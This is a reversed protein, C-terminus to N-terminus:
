TPESREIQESTEKKSPEGEFIQIQEGGMLLHPKLKVVRIIVSKFDQVDYDWVQLNEDSIELSKNADIKRNLDQAVKVLDRLFWKKGQEFFQKDEENKLVFVKFEPNEAQETEWSHSELLHRLHDRVNDSSM